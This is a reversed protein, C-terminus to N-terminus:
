TQIQIITKSVWKTKFSIMRREVERATVSVTVVVCKGSEQKWAEVGRQVPSVEAVSATSKRVWKLRTEGRFYKWISPWILDLAGHKEQHSYSLSSPCPMASTGSCYRPSQLRCFRCTKREERLTSQKNSAIVTQWAASRWPWVSEKRANKWGRGHHCGRKVYEVGWLPFMDDEERWMTSFLGWM